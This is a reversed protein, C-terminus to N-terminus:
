GFSAAPFRTALGHAVPIRLIVMIKTGIRDLDCGLEANGATHFQDRRLTDNFADFEIVVTASQSIGDMSRDNWRVAMKRCCSIEFRRCGCWNDGGFRFGFYRWTRNRGGGRRLIGHVDQDVEPVTQSVRGLQREDQLVQLFIPGIPVDVHGSQNTLVACEIAEAASHIHEFSFKGGTAVVALAESKIPVFTM